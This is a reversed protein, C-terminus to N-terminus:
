RFHAQSVFNDPKDYYKVEISDDTHYRVRGPTNLADERALIIESSRSGGRRGGCSNFGFGPRNNFRGYHQWGNVFWPEIKLHETPFIQVRVGTFFWPTQLLCVFAPLGWNDFQYYSFLRRVSM